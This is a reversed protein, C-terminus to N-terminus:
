HACADPIGPPPNHPCSYDSPDDPPPPPDDKYEELVGFETEFLCYCNSLEQGETLFENDIFYEDGNSDNAAAPSLSIGIM